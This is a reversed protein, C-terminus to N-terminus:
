VSVPTSEGVNGPDPRDRGTVQYPPPGHISETEDQQGEAGGQRKKAPVVALVEEGGFPNKRRIKRLMRAEIQGM